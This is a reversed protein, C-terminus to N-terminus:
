IMLHSLNWKTNRYYNNNRAWAFIKTSTLENLFQDRTGGWGQTLKQHQSVRHLILNQEWSYLTSLTLAAPCPQILVPCCSCRDAIGTHGQAIKFLPLVGDRQITQLVRLSEPPWNQPSQRASYLNHQYQYRTFGTGAAKSTILIKLDTLTSKQGNGQTIEQPGAISDSRQRKDKCPFCLLILRIKQKHKSSFSSLM